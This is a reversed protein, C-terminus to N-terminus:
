LWEANTDAKFLYPECCEPLLDSSVPIGVERVAKSM